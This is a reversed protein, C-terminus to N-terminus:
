KVESDGCDGCLWKVHRYSDPDLDGSLNWYLGTYAEVLEWITADEPWDSMNVGCESCIKQM